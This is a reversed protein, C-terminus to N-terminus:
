GKIPEDGAGPRSRARLPADYCTSPEVSSIAWKHADLLGDRINLDDRHHPWAHSGVVVRSSNEQARGLAGCRKSGHDSPMTHPRGKQLNQWAEAQRRHIAAVAHARALRRLRIREHLEAGSPALASIAAATVPGIGPNTKLRRADEDEEACACPMSLKHPQRVLVDRPPM